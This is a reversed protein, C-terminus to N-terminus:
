FVRTMVYLLRCLQIDATVYLASRGLVKSWSDWIFSKDVWSVAIKRLVLIYLKVRLM